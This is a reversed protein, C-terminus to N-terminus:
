LLEEIMRSHASTSRRVGCARVLARRCLLFTNAFPELNAVPFIDSSQRFSAVVTGFSRDRVHDSRFRADDDLRRFSRDVSARSFAAHRFPQCPARECLVPLQDAFSERAARLRDHSHCGAPHSMRRRFGCIAQVQGPLVAAMTCGAAVGRACASSASQM